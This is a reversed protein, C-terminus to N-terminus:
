QRIRIIAYVICYHNYFHVQTQILTLQDNVHIATASSHEESISESSIVIKLIITKKFFIYILSCIYLIFLTFHLYLNFYNM